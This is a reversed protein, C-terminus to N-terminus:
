EYSVSKHGNALQLMEKSVRDFKLANSDLGQVQIEFTQDLNIRIIEFTIGSNSALYVQQGVRFLSM